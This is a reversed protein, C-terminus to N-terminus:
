SDNGLGVYVLGGFGKVMRGLLGIWPIETCGSCWVAVLIVFDDTYMDILYIWQAWGMGINKRECSSRDGWYIKM